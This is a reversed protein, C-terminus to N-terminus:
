EAPVMAPARHREERRQLLRNYLWGTLRILIRRPLSRPAFHSAFERNIQLPRWYQAQWELFCASLEKEQEAKIAMQACNCDARLLVQGDPDFRFSHRTPIHQLWGHNLEFEEPMTRLAAMMPSVDLYAM